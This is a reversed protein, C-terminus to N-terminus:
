SYRHLKGHFIEDICKKFQEGRQAFNAFMDFSSTGPSLIIYDGGSSVNYASIVAEKLTVAKLIVANNNFKKILQEFLPTTEGILIVAKADKSLKECLCSYDINKNKGGAIIIKPAKIIELGFISAQPTTANSDNIFKRGEFEGVFELRHLLNKYGNISALISEGTINLIKSVAVLSLITDLHLFPNKIDGMNLVKQSIGNTSFYIRENELYAGNKIKKVKSFGFIKAGTYEKFKTVNENDENLICFHEDEQYRVLNMKTNIYEDFNKHKDLHDPYINLVVSIYPALKNHQFYQLQFSSIELIVLDNKEIDTLDKLLSGGINGGLWCKRFPYFSESQKHTNIINHLASCFTSKGLTGTVGVIKAKCLTFFLTIETFVPKGTAQAWKYIDSDLMVSPNLIILDKNEFDENKHEGFKFEVNNLTSLQALIDKFEDPPKLDCVVVKRCISSLFKVTGAGGGFRGLGIVIATKDRFNNKFQELEMKKV